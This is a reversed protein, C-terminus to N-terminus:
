RFIVQRGDRSGCSSRICGEVPAARLHKAAHESLVAARLRFSREETGIARLEVALAYTIWGLVAVLPHELDWHHTM